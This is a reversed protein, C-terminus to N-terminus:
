SGPRRRRCGSLDQRGRLEPADAPPRARRRQDVPDARHHRRRAARGSLAAAAVRGLSVVTRRGQPREGDLRGRRAQQRRLRGAGAARVGVANGDFAVGSAADVDRAPDTVVEGAVTVRGARIIEEAARRSAVGSNALFKALRMPTDGYLDSPDPGARVVREALETLRAVPQLLDPLPRGRPRRRRPSSWGAARTQAVRQGLRHRERRQGDLVLGVRAVARDLRQHAGGVAARELRHQHAVAVAAAREADGRLRAAREGAREAGGALHLEPAVQGGDSIRSWASWKRRMVSTSWQTNMPMPSGSIFRSLTSAAQRRSGSTPM